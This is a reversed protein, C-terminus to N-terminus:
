PRNVHVIFVRTTRRRAVFNSAVRDEEEISGGCAVRDTTAQRKNRHSAVYLIVLAPMQGTASRLEYITFQLRARHPFHLFHAPVKASDRERACPASL